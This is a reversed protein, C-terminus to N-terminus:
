PTQEQGGSGADATSKGTGGLIDRYNLPGREVRKLIRRISIFGGASMGLESIVSLFTYKFRRANM